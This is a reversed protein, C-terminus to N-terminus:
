GAGRAYSHLGVIWLNVAYLTVLISVFGVSAILATRRGRWARLTHAHLYIAYVIWTIAAWTEKPDWGWWRGWAHEGWIAGAMTGFTWIPFGLLIARFTLRDLTELSPLRAAIASGHLWSKVSASRDKVLYLAAFVFSSVLVGSSLMMSTVHIKLWYSQLAPVLPEPSQYLGYGIGMVAVVVFLAIGGGQLAVPWRISMLLFVAVAVLALMSSYEYMNALPYHGDAFGRTVVAGFHILVGPVALAIALSRFEDNRYAFYTFFFVMSGLYCLLAAFYLHLSLDGIAGSRGLDGRVLLFGLLYVALPALWWPSIRRPAPAQAHVTTVSQELTTQAM